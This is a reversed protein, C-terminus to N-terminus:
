ANQESKLTHLTELATKVLTPAVGPLFLSSASEYCPENLATDTPFYGESGNANCCPITMKFPSESKVTRGLETFPEGPFGVFAVDGFGVSVVKLDVTRGCKELRLYKRAM